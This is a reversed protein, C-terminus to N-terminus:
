RVPLDHRINRLLAQAHRQGWPWYTMFFSLPRGTCSYESQLDPERLMLKGSILSDHQKVLVFPPNGESMGNKCM